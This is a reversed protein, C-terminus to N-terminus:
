YSCPCRTSSVRCDAAKTAPMIKLKPLLSTRDSVVNSDDIGDVEQSFAHMNFVKFQLGDEGTLPIVEGNNSSNGLVSEMAASISGVAQQKSNAYVITQMDTPHKYDQKSSSTVASLPNGSMIVDFQIRQHSLELWMVKGPPRGFLDTIVEQNCQRFTASMAIRNCKTIQAGYVSQLM